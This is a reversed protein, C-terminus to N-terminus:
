VIDDLGSDRKNHGHGHNCGFCGCCGCFLCKSCSYCCNCCCCSDKSVRIHMKAIFYNVVMQIVSLSWIAVVYLNIPFQVSICNLNSRFIVFGGIICWCINFLLLLTTILGFTTFMNIKDEEKTYTKGMKSIFMLIGFLIINSIGYGYLYHVINIGSDDPSNCTINVKISLVLSVVGLGLVFIILYCITIYRQLKNNKHAVDKNTM